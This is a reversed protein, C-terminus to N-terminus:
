VHHNGSMGLRVSVTQLVSKSLLVDNKLKLRAFNLRFEYLPFRSDWVGTQKEESASNEGNKCLLSTRMGSFINTKVRMRLLHCASPPLNLFFLEDVM